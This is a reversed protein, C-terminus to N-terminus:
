IEKPKIADPDRGAIAMNERFRKKEQQRNWICRGILFIAILVFFVVFAVIIGIMFQNVASFAQTKLLDFENTVKGELTHTANIVRDKVNGLTTEVNDIVNSATSEIENRAALIEDGIDGLFSLVDQIAQNIDFVSLERRSYLLERRKNIYSHRHDQIGEKSIGPYMELLQRRTIYAM